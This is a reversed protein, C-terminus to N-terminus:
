LLILQTNSTNIIHTYTTLTYQSYAPLRFSLSASDKVRVHSVKKPTVYAVFGVNKCSSPFSGIYLSLYQLMDIMVYINTAFGGEKYDNQLSKYCFTAFVGWSLAKTILMYCIHCIYRGNDCQTQIFATKNM